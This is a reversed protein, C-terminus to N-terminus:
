LKSTKLVVSQHPRTGTFDNLQQRGMYKTKVGYHNAM